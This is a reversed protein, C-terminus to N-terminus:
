VRLDASNKYSIILSLIISLLSNLKSTFKNM